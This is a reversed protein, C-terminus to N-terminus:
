TKVRRLHPAPITAMTPDATIRLAQPDDLLDDDLAAAVLEPDDLVLLPAASGAL